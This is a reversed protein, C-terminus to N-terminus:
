SCIACLAVCACAEPTQLMACQAICAACAAQKAADCARPTEQQLAETGGLETVFAQKQDTSLQGLLWQDLVARARAPDLSPHLQVAKAFQLVSEADPRDGAQSSVDAQCSALALLLGSLCLFLWQRIM